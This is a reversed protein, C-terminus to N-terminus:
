NFNESDFTIVTYYKKDGRENLKSDLYAKVDNESLEYPIAIDFILNTYEAGSVMRFDHISLRNDFSSLIDLVMKKATDLEKDGTVIPDYHIVLHVGLKSLCDRELDDIVGHCVMPDERVDMEVHLSAFRQGPGYDHVMLDHYGLVLKHSNVVEIISKCLEPSANEGLLPSITEKALMIGSYLIFVSVCLGVYGDVKFGTFNEIIVAFLVAATALVDNRSDSSTAALASSNILRSLKKNFVALWLKTLISLGLVLGLPISFAVSSPNIIKEVSSRLLEFGILIIM